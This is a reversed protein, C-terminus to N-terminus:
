SFYQTIQTTLLIYISFKLSVNSNSPANEQSEKTHVMEKYIPSSSICQFQVANGHLYGSLDLKRKNRLEPKLINGSEEQPVLSEPQSQSLSHLLM